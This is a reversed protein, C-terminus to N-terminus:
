PVLTFAILTKDDDLNKIGRKRLDKSAEKFYKEFSSLTNTDFLALLLRARFAIDSIFPRIGDSFLMVVDGDIMDVSGTQVYSLASVEGTLAGYTLYSREPRNRVTQRWFIRQADKDCFREGDRFEELIGVRNESLFRPWLSSYFSNYILMGCDGIYGYELTCPSQENFRVAFGVCCLYDKQLYDVTESGIGFRYNLANIEANAYAFCDSMLQKEKFAQTMAQCFVEAALRSCHGTDAVRSVGDAVVFLGADKSFIYYDDNIKSKLNDQQFAFVKLEPM